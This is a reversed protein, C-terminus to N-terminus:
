KTLTMSSVYPKMIRLVKQIKQAAIDNEEVHKEYYKSSM